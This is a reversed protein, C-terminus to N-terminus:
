GERPRKRIEDGIWWSIGRMVLEALAIPHKELQHMVQATFDMEPKHETGSVHITCWHLGESEQAFVTKRADPLWTLSADPLGAQVTGSLKGEPTLHVSGRLGAQGPAIVKINELTLGSADQRWDCSAQTFSIKSYNATKLFRDLFQQFKFGVLEMGTLQLTGGGRGRSIDTGRWAWMVRGALQGAVGGQLSEPLYAGLPLHSAIIDLSADSTALAWSGSGRLDIENDGRIVLNTARVVGDELAYDLSAQSFHLRSLTPNGSRRAIRDLYDWDHLSGDELSFSGQGSASRGSQDTAYSLEGNLRGSLIAAIDAPLFPALDLRHISATSKISKDAHQGLRAAIQLNSHASSPERLYLYGIDIMERTVYVELADIALSPYGPYHLSGNKGFYKFNDGIMMAGVQLNEGRVAANGFPLAIQLDACDIWGCSFQSPMLRAYWPKPPTVPDSSKLADDPAVLRFDASALDIHDVRWEGRLIAWPNFWGTASTTDLQGIAQGPWGTSQYGAATVSFDEGLQLPGFQGDVKLAHSVAQSLMRNFSPGTVWQILLPPLYQRAAVWGAGAALFVAFIATALRQKSQKPM